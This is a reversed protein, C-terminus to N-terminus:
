IDGLQPRIIIEEVDTSASLKSVDWVSQAIDQAPIFRTQPLDVGEWSPTYTAGPMIATVKVGTSKLEHRLQKSFGLLAFKSISYAGGNDYAQLSAISCMNFVHGRGQKIMHPVVQRTAYYASYLNTEIMNELNGDAEDLLIGPTFIGANNVLVDISDLKNIAQNVFATIQQNNKADCSDFYFKANPYTIQLLSQLQQTADKSRAYGAVNWGNSAFLNCIALGIGKTCGSVLITQTHQM